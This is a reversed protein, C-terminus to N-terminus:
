LHTQFTSPDGDKINFSPDVILMGVYRSRTIYKRKLVTVPTINSPSEENKRLDNESNPTHNGNEEEIFEDRPTVPKPIIADEEKLLMQDQFANSPSGDEDDKNELLNRSQHLNEKSPFSSDYMPEEIPPIIPSHHHDVEIPTDHLRQDDQLM